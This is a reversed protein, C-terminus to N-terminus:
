DTLVPEIGTPAVMRSEKKDSTQFVAYISSLKPTRSFGNSDYNLGEPFIFQQFKQQAAPELDAWIKDTRTLFWEAYSLLADINYEKKRLDNLDLEKRTIENNLKNLRDELDKTSIKEYAGLDIIKEKKDELDLIEQALKRRISNTEKYEENWVDLCIEKFDNVYSDKPKVNELLERFESNIKDSRYSVGTCKYCHYYGYKKTKGKSMSGTLSRSCKQCVLLGRLPFNPNYKQRTVQSPKFGNVVAQCADFVEKTVIAEHQGKVLKKEWPDFIYGAYFPNKLISNLTQISLNKGARTTLGLKTVMQLIEAQSYVGLSYEIFAKKIIEYRKPDLVRITKDTEDKVSLYGIAPRGFVWRGEKTRQKMGIKTRETRVENDFQAFAALMGEMLNGQPTEDIPETVSIFKVGYKLLMGTIAHHDGSNRSLRDVKWVFLADVKGKNKACYDLMAILEPRDATKASEGRDIFKREVLYGMSEALKICASEQNELSTKKEAQEKTSVRCYIIGIM